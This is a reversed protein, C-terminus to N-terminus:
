PQVEEAPEPEHPNELWDGRSMHVWQGEGELGAPGPRPYFRIAGDCKRCTGSRQGRVRPPPLESM